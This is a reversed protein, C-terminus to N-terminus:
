FDAPDPLLKSFLSLLPLTAIAIGVVIGGVFLNKKVGSENEEVVEM